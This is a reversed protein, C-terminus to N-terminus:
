VQPLDCVRLEALRRLVDEIVNDPCSAGATLGIRWTRNLDAVETPLSILKETREKFQQLFGQIGHKNDTAVIARVGCVQSM